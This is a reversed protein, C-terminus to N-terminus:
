RGAARDAFLGRLGDETAAWFTKPNSPDIALDRVTGGINGPGLWTFSGQGIGAVAAPPQGAARVTAHGRPSSLTLAAVALLAAAVRRWRVNGLSM